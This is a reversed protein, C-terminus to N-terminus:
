RTMKDDGSLTATQEVTLQGVALAWCYKKELSSPIGKTPEVTKSLLVCAKDLVSGSRQGAPIIETPEVERSLLM